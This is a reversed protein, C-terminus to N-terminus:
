HSRGGSDRRADARGTIGGRETLQRWARDILVRVVSYLVSTSLGFMLVGNAAELAGLLRRDESMVLDGYGLTTFNVMSFYFATHFEEFQGLALFLYAWLSIQVLNGAFLLLMVVLLIVTSRIIGPRIIHKQELAFLTRLLVSVAAGQIVFCVAMTGLGILLNESM